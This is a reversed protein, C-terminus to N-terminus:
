HSAGLQYRLDVAVRRLTSYLREGNDFAGRQDSEDERHEEAAMFTLAIGKSVSTTFGIDMQYGSLQLDNSFDSRGFHSGLLFWNAPFLECSFTFSGSLHTRSDLHVGDINFKQQLVRLDLSLQSPLNLIGIRTVNAVQGYVNSEKGKLTETKKTSEDLRNYDHYGDGMGALISFRNVRGDVRAVSLAVGLHADNASPSSDMTEKSNGRIESRDRDSRLVYFDYVFGSSPELQATPEPKALMNWHANVALFKEPLMTLLGFELIPRYSTQRDILREFVGAGIELSEGMRTIIQYADLLYIKAASEYVAGARTDFEASDHAKELGTLDLSADPRLVVHLRSEQPLDWDLALRFRSLGLTRPRERSLRRDVLTTTKPGIANITGLNQLKDIYTLSADVNYTFVPKPEADALAQPLSFNWIFILPLLIYKM